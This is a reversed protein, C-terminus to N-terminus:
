SKVRFSYRLIGRNINYVKGKMEGKRNITVFSLADGTVVPGNALREGALNISYEKIGTAVNFVKISNKDAVASYMTTIAMYM